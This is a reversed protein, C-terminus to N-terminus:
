EELYSLFESELIMEIGRELAKKYIPHDRFGEGLVIFDTKASLEDEIKGGLKELLYRLEQVSYKELTGAIVFYKIKNRDYVRNIIKDGPVIPDLSNELKIVGAMSMHPELTKVVIEGKKKPEGGKGYRFVDFRLGKVVGQSRGLDIYVTKSADDSYVIEGDPNEQPKASEPTVETKKVVVKVEDPGEKPKEAATFADIKAIAESLREEVDLQGITEEELERIREELNEKIDKQSYEQYLRKRKLKTVIALAQLKNKQIEQTKLKAKLEDATIQNRTNTNKTREAQIEQLVKKVEDLTTKREREHNKQTKEFQAKKELLQETLGAAEEEKEEKGRRIHSSCALWAEQLGTIDAVENPKDLKRKDYIMSVKFGGGEKEVLYFRDEPGTGGIVWWTKDESQYNIKAGAGLTQQSKEFEKRLGDSIQLINLDDIIKPDANYITFGSSGSSAKLTLPLGLKKSTGMVIMKTAIADIVADPDYTGEGAHFGVVNIVSDLKARDQALNKRVQEYEKEVKDLNEVDESIKSYSTIGLGVFAISLVIFVVVAITAQGRNSKKMKLM